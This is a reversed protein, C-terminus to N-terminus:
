LYFSSMSWAWFSNEGLCQFSTFGENCICTGTTDDCTGQNSCVGLVPVSPCDFEKSSLFCFYPKSSILWILYRNSCLKSSCDTGNRGPDCLCIGTSTDCNGANSCDGPCILELSFIVIYKIVDYKIVLLIILKGSCDYGQHEEDCTCLGSTM